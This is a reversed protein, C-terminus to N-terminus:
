LCMYANGVMSHIERGPGSKIFSYPISVMLVGAKVADLVPSIRTFRLDQWTLSALPGCLARQIPASIM